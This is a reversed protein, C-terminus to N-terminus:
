ACAVARVSTHPSYTGWWSLTAAPPPRHPLLHSSPPQGFGAQTLEQLSQQLIKLNESPLPFATLTRQLPMVSLPLQSSSCEPTISPVNSPVSSGTSTDPRWAAHAETQMRDRQAELWQYGEKRGVELVGQKSQLFVPEKREESFNSFPRQISFCWDWAWGFTPHKEVASLFQQLTCVAQFLLAQHSELLHQLHRQECKKRRQIHCFSM